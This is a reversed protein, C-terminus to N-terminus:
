LDTKEIEYLSHKDTNFIIIINMRPMPIEYLFINNCNEFSNNFLILSDTESIINFDYTDFLNSFRIINSHFNITASQYISIAYSSCNTITNSAFLGDETDYVYIGYGNNTILNSKVTINKSFEVIVARMYNQIENDIVSVNNSSQIYVGMYSASSSSLMNNKVVVHQNVNTIVISASLSPAADSILYNKIIYPDNEVGTGPWGEDLATQNLDADSTIEIYDHPSYNQGVKFTMNGQLIQPTYGSSHAGTIPVAFFIVSLLFYFVIISLIPKKM